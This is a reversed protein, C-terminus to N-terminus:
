QEAYNVEYIRRSLDQESYVLDFTCEDCDFAEIARPTFIYKIGFEDLDHVNLSLQILDTQMLQVTTPIDNVLNVSIHAYRNYIEEYQGTPDIKSWIDSNCYTNTSNLTPAGNMAVFNGEVWSGSEAIWIGGDEQQIQRIAQSLRNDDIVDMGSRVPNVLGGAFLMTICMAACFATQIRKSNHLALFFLVSCVVALIVIYISKLYEGYVLRKGYYAVAVGMIVSAPITIYAKLHYKRVAMSRILMIVNAFVLAIVARNAQSNSLLTVKALAEPFGLVVYAGLFIQLVWMLLLLKDKVKDKFLVLLSLILGIPFLDFFSSLESENAPMNTTTIPLLLNAPYRFFYSLGIGGIEVRAGPYASNMVAQITDWSRVVIFLMCGALLIVSGAIIPIDKKASFKFEKYREIIIWIGVLLFVYFFPIQWAPYMVLIYAGGTIVFGIGCLIRQWYKTTQMYVAVCLIIGQGYILMEPFSNAGFWWQVVPAFAVMAAYTLSLLKNRKTILMGMEFSVLILIVLKGVWYFAMGRAPSLFLYGIQFPRFIISWDMVPQGYVIYMDTSRGRFIDGFVSFDSYYQSLTMPTHVAWEDSRVARDQGLLVGTDSINPDPMFDKWMGISSGSIEFVVALLIVGIGLPWRFRYIFEGIQRGFFYLAFCIAAIGVVLITMRLINLSSLLKSAIYSFDGGDGSFGGVLVLYAETFAGFFVAFLIMLVAHVIKLPRIKQKKIQSM